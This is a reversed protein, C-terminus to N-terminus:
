MPYQIELHMADHHDIPSLHTSTVPLHACSGAPTAGAGSFFDYIKWVRCFFLKREERKRKMRGWLDIHAGAVVAV